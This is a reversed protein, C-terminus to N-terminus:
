SYAGVKFDDWRSEVWEEELEVRVLCDKVFRKDHAHGAGPPATESKVQKMHSKQLDKFVAKMSLWEARCSFCLSFFHPLSNNYTRVHWVCTHLMTSPPAPSGIKSCDQGGVCTRINYSAISLPPFLSHPKLLFVEDTKFGIGIFLFMAFHILLGSVTSGRNDPCRQGFLNKGM